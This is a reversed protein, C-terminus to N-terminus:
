ALAARLVSEQAASGRGCITELAAEARADSTEIYASPLADPNIRRSDRIQSLLTEANPAYHFLGTGIESRHAHEGDATLLSTPVGLAAAEVGVSSSCTVHHHARSLLAFLPAATATELDFNRAGGAQLQGRLKEVDAALLPHLRILWLWTAPANGMAELLHQPLPEALTQMTFLIVREHRPLDDVFKALEPALPLAAGDRWKALWRHGGVIPRLVTFDDERATEVQRKTPEGWAWFYDPMTAYGGPPIRTWHTFFANAEGCRGHQHEVTRIGLSRAAGMLAAETTVFFGGTIVARPQLVELWERFWQRRWLFSTALKDVHFRKSLDVGAVERAARILPQMGVVAPARFNDPALPPTLFTTSEWRPQTRLGEPSRVEVKVCRYKRKAFEILADLHRNYYKGSFQDQYSHHRSWFLLDAGGHRRLEKREGAHRMRRALRTGARAIKTAGASGFRPASWISEEVQKHAFGAATSAEGGQTGRHVPLVHQNTLRSWLIPRLIPWLQVDGCRIENVEGRQEIEVLQQLLDAQKL